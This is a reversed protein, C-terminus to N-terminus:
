SSLYETILSSTYITYIVGRPAENWKRLIRRSTLQLTSWVTITVSSEKLSVRNQNGECYPELQFRLM